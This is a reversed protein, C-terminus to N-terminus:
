KWHPNLLASWGDVLKKYEDQCGEARDPHLDGEKVLFAFTKEDSGYLYCMFNASRQLDLSHTDYFPLDSVRKIEEASLAYSNAVSILVDKSEDGKTLVYAALQDAVDEERGTFKLGLEGILAHGAEHWLTGIASNVVEKDLSGGSTGDKAFQQRESTLLEYCLQIKHEEESYFANAEGCDEAVVRLDRPLKISETLAQAFDELGKNKELLGQEAKGADSKAGRYEAVAKGPASRAKDAAPPAKGATAPEACGALTALMTAAAVLATKTPHRM